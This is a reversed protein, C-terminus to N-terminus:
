KASMSVRDQPGSRLTLHKQDLRFSELTKEISVSDATVAKRGM